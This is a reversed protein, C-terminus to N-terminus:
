PRTSPADPQEDVSPLLTFILLIPVTRATIASHKAHVVGANAALDPTVPTTLLMVVPLTMALAVTVRPLVLTLVLELPRYVSVARAPLYVSRIV